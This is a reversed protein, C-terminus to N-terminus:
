REVKRREIGVVKGTFTDGINPASQVRAPVTILVYQVDGDFVSVRMEINPEDSLHVPRRGTLARTARWM